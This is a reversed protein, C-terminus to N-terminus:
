EFKRAVQGAAPARARGPYWTVPLFPHTYTYPQTHTRPSQGSANQTPIGAAHVRVRPSRSRASASDRGGQSSLTVVGGDLGPRSCSGRVGVHTERCPRGGWSVARASPRVSHSAPGGRARPPGPRAPQPRELRAPDGAMVLGYWPRSPRRFNISRRPFRAPGPDAVGCAGIEYRIHGARAQKAPTIPACGPPLPSWAHPRPRALPRVVRVSRCMRPRPRFSLPTAFVSWRTAPASRGVSARLCRPRVPAARVRTYTINM